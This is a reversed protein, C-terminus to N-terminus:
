ISCARSRCGNNVGDNASRCLLGVDRYVRRARKEMNKISKRNQELIGLLDEFSYRPRIYGGTADVPTTPLKGNEVAISSDKRERPYTTSQELIRVMDGIARIQQDFVLDIISLEDQIDKIEDLLVVEESIDLLDQLENSREDILNM